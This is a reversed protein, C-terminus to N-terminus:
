TTVARCCNLNGMTKIKPWKAVPPTTPDHNHHSALLTTTGHVFWETANGKSLVYLLLFVDATTYDHPNNRPLWELQGDTQNKAM